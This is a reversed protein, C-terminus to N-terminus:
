VKPQPDKGQVIFDKDIILSGMYGCDPCLYAGTMGGIYLRINPSQCRPCYTKHM